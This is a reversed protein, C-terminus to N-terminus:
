GYTNGGICSSADKDDQDVIQFGSTPRTGLSESNTGSVAFELQQLRTINKM